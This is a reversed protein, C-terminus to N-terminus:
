NFQPIVNIPMRCFQAIFQFFYGEENKKLTIDSFFKGKCNIKIIFNHIKKLFFM